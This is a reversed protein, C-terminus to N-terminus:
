HEPESSCSGSVSSITGCEPCRDPTARLDYGCTWCRPGFEEDIKQRLHPRALRAFMNLCLYFALSPFLLLYFYIHFTGWWVAKPTPVVFISSEGLIWLAAVVWTQWRLHPHTEGLAARWIRKRDKERLPRLEPISKLTLYISLNRMQLEMVRNATDGRYRGWDGIGACNGLRILGM